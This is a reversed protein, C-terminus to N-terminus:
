KPKVKLKKGPKLSEGSDINNLQILDNVSVGQYKAAINMLSEGRKIKHYVYKTRKRKRRKKKSKKTNTTPLPIPKWELEKTAQISSLEGKVLPLPEILAISKTVDKSIFILIRQGQRLQSSTLRNWKKIDSENCSFIQALSQINEGQEVTHFLSISNEPAFAKKRPALIREGVVLNRNRSDLGPYANQFVAMRDQPLVLNNGM